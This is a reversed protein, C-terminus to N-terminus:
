RKSVLTEISGTGRDSQDEHACPQSSRGAHGRDTGTEPEPVARGVTTAPHLPPRAMFLTGSALL